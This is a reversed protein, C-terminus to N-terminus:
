AGVVARVSAAPLVLLWGRARWAIAVGIGRGTRDLVPGGLASESNVAVSYVSAFGSCRPSQGDPRPWNPPGLVQRLKVKKGKRTVVIRVHDGPLPAGMEHQLLKLYAQRNPTPHDDISLIIDGKRLLSPGAVQSVDAVELGQPQNQVKAWLSGREAPISVMPHSVFGTAVQGAQVALAVLAGVPPADAESWELVPLDTAEIKLIALNHERSTKIVTAPLVRGDPLRCTPAEPLVNALTLIHGDRGVVTGQAVMLNGNLVEVVSGRTREAAHRHNAGAAELPSTASQEYPEHLEDWHIRVLEVRPNTHPRQGHGIGAHLAVLRGNVDFVGGGSDGGVFPTKPDTELLHSWHAAWPTAVSSWRMLPQRDFADRPGYGAFLCQDGPRLRTSNGIEVYPWPGKDTIQVLGVDCLHNYGVVVGAADRGDPLCVITKAGPMVFDQFGHACTVILGDASVITGSFGRDKPHKRIQVTAATAKKAVDPLMAKNVPPVTDDGRVSGRLRLEDLNKGTALDNWLSRIVKADMYITGLGAGVYRLWGVGVLRGDLDFVAPANRSRTTKEDRVVFWRGIAAGTVGEVNLLPQPFLQPAEVPPYGLTIVCQGAKVGASGALEIHPWPGPGDLKVLSIGWEQSWGLVTGTVRRHDSLHFTRKGDWSIGRYLTYGDSTVIVGADGGLLGGSEHEVRALAHNARDFVEAVRRQIEDATLAGAAVDVAPGDSSAPLQNSPKRHWHQYCVYASAGLALLAILGGVISFHKTM